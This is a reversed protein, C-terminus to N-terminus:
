SQVDPLLLVIIPLIFTNKQYKHCMNSLIGINKQWM